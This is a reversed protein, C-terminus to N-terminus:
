AVAVKDKNKKAEAAQVEALLKRAVSLDIVNDRPDAEKAKKENRKILSELQSAFNFPKYEAEKKWVWMSDKQLEGGLKRVGAADAILPTMEDRKKSALLFGKIKKGDKDTAKTDGWAFPGKAQFWDRMDNARMGPGMKEILRSAPTVDGYAIAHIVILAGALAVKTHLQKSTVAIENLVQNIRAGSTAAGDKGKAKSGLDMAKLATAKDNVKKAMTEYGRYAYRLM